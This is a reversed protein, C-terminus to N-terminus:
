KACHMKWRKRRGIRNRNSRRGIVRTKCGSACTRRDNNGVSSPSSTRRNAGFGFKWSPISYSRQAAVKGASKNWNQKRKRKWLAERFAQSEASNSPFAAISIGANGKFVYVVDLSDEYEAEIRDAGAEIATKLLEILVSEDDSGTKKKKM